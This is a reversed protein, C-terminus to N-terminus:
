KRLQKLKEELLEKSIVGKIYLKHLTDIYKKRDKM